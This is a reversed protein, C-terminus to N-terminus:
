KVALCTVTKFVGEIKLATLCAEGRVGPRAHLRNTTAHKPAPGIFRAQQRGIQGVGKVLEKGLEHRGVRRARKALL